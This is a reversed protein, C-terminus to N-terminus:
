ESQKAKSMYICNGMLLAFSGILFVFYATAIPTSTKVSDKDAFLRNNALYAKVVKGEPYMYTNHVNELTYEEGEYEVKVTYFKTRSKTKKNVIEDTRASLVTVQVEESDVKANNMPFWLAVTIVVCIAFISWLIIMRKKM